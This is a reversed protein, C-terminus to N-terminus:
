FSIGGVRHMAAISSNHGDKVGLTITNSLLAEPLYGPQCPTKITTGLSPILRERKKERIGGRRGERWGGCTLVYCSSFSPHLDLIDERPVWNAVVKINCLRWDIVVQPVLLNTKYNNIGLSSIYPENWEEKRHKSHKFNNQLLFNISLGNKLIQRLSVRLLGLYCIRAPRWHILPQLVVHEKSWSM